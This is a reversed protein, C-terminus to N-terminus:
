PALQEYNYSIRWKEFDQDQCNEICNLPLYIASLCIEVIKARSTEFGNEACFLKLQHLDPKLWRNLAGQSCTSRM